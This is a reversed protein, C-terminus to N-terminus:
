EGMKGYLWHISVPITFRSRVVKSKDIGPCWKPMLKFSELVSSDLSTDIGRLVKFNSITSDKEVVFQIFVTGFYGNNLLEGPMKYNDMFYKRVSERLTSCTDYRFTPQVEPNLCILLDPKQGLCFNCTFFTILLILWISKM